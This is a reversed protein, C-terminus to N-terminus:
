KTLDPRKGASIERIWQDVAERRFEWFRKSEALYDLVADTRGLELLCQALELDPGFSNLQPSGRTRGALGLERSASEVDGRLGAVTGLVIHGWHVSNGYTWTREFQSADRLVAEAAATAADLQDAAVAARAIDIQLLHRAFDWSELEYAREFARVADGALASAAAADTATKSRHMLVKGLHSPWNAAEPQLWAGERYLAEADEPAEFKVFRAAQERYVPNEPSGEVLEKWALRISEYLAPADERQILTFGGLDIDPHHTVLWLIDEARPQNECSGSDWVSSACNSTM